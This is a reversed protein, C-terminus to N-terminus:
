DEKPIQADCWLYGLILVLGAPPLLVGVLVCTPIAVCGLVFREVRM